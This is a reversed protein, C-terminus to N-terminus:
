PQDRWVIAGIPRIYCRQKDIFVEAMDNVFSMALSFQPKIVLHGEINVYGWKQEGDNDGIAVAAFGESFPEARDFQPKIVIEGTKDMYGVKLVTKGSEDVPASVAAVGGSFSSLVEFKTDLIWTENPDIFGSKGGSTVFALGDGFDTAGEYKLAIVEKGSSDIFGYKHDLGVRARGDIFPGVVDYKPAVIEKGQRDIFGIKGPQGRILSQVSALGGSFNGVIAYDTEFAIEGRPTVFCWKGGGATKRKVAALGLHFGKVEEFTPDIAWKGKADLFGWGSPGRAAAFGESFREGTSAPTRIIIAGRRDIYVLKGGQYGPYLDDVDEVASQSCSTLLFLSVVKCLHHIRM